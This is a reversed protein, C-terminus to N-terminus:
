VDGGRNMIRGSRRKRTYRAIPPQAMRERARRQRSARRAERSGASGSSGGGSRDRRVKLAARVDYGWQGPTAGWQVHLEVFVIQVHPAIYRRDDPMSVVVHEQTAGGAELLMKYVLTMARWEVTWPFDVFAEHPTGMANGFFHGCMIHRPQVGEMYASPWRFPRIRAALNNTKTRRLWVGGSSKPLSSLGARRYRIALITVEEGRTSTM